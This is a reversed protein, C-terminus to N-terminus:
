CSGASCCVTPRGGIGGMGAGPTGLRCLKLMGVQDGRLATDELCSWLTISRLTSASAAVLLLLLRGAVGLLPLLLGILSSSGTTLGNSSGYRTPSSAAARAFLSRSALSLSSFMRWISSLCHSQNSLLNCGDRVDRSVTSIYAACIRVQSSRSLLQCLNRRSTSFGWLFFKNRRM